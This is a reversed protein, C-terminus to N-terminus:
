EPGRRSAGPGRSPSVGLRGAGQDSGEELRASDLMPGIPRIAASTFRLRELAAERRLRRGKALHWGLLRLLPGYFLADATIKGIVVGIPGGVFALGGWLCLPRTVLTDVPEAVGFELLFGRLVRRFDRRSYDHHGERVEALDRRLEGVVLAVYFVTVEFLATGFAVLALRNTIRGLLGAMVVASALALVDAVGFRTLWSRATRSAGVSQARAAQSAPLQAVELVHEGVTILDGANLVAPGVLQQGNVRSGFRSRDYLLPGAPTPVISAHRRSVAAGTLHIDSDPLRGIAVTGDDARWLRDGLRVVWRTLEPPMAAQM